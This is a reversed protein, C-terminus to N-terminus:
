QPAHCRGVVYPVSKPCRSLSTGTSIVYDDIIIQVEVGVSVDCVYAVGMVGVSVDCVYAVGMVGVSVDYVCAVGMVGWVSVDYVCAVGM